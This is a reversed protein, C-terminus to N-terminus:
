ETPTMPTALAQAEPALNELAKALRPFFDAFEKVIENHKIQLLVVELLVHPRGALRKIEEIKIKPDSMRCCVWVMRPLEKGALSLLQEFDLGMPDFKLKVEGGTSDIALGGAVAGIIPRALDCFEIYADYDLDKLDFTRSEGSRPNTITFTGAPENRLRQAMETQSIERPESM